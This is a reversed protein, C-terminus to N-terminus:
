KKRMRKEFILRFISIKKERADSTCASNKKVSYLKYDGKIIIKKLTHTYLYCLLYM